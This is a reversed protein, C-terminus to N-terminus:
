AHGVEVPTGMDDCPSNATARGHHFEFHVLRGDNRHESSCSFPSGILECVGAPNDGMCCRSCAEFKDNDEVAVCGPPAENPDVKGM